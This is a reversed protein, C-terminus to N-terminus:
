GEDNAHMAAHHLHAKYADLMGVADLYRVGASGYQFNGDNNLVLVMVGAVEGRHYQDVLGAILNAVAERDKAKSPDEAKPEGQSPVLYLHREESM